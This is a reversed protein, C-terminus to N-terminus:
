VKEVARVRKAVRWTNDDCCKVVEDLLPRLMAFPDRLELKPAANLIVHLQEPMEPPTDICLIRCANPGNWRTFFGMEYWLYDKGDLTRPENPKLVKKTLIRFWTVAHTACHYAERQRM